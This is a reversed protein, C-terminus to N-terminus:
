IKAHESKNLGHDYNYASGGHKSVDLGAQEEEPSIRLKGVAKLIAFLIGTWFCTWLPIVLIGILNSVFLGGGNGPYFAGYSMGEYGNDPGRVARVAQEVYTPDALLGTVFLGWAGCVGHM